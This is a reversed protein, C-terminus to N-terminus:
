GVQAAPATDKAKGKGKVKGAPKASDKSPATNAEVPATNIEADDPDEDDNDVEAVTVGADALLQQAEAYDEQNAPEFRDGLSLLQVLDRADDVDAVLENSENARFTYVTGSVGCANVTKDTRPKLNTQLKM